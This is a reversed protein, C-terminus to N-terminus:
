LTLKYINEAFLGRPDLDCDSIQSLDSAGNLAEKGFELSATCCFKNQSDISLGFLMLDEM